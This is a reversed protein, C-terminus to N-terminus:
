NSNFVKILFNDPEIDILLAAFLLYVDGYNPITIQKFLQFIISYLMHLTEENNQVATDQHPVFLFISSYSLSSSLIM